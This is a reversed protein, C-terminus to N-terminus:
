VEGTVPEKGPAQFDYKPTPPRPPLVTGKAEVPPHSAGPEPSAPAPKPAPKPKDMNRIQMVASFFSAQWALLGGLFMWVPFKTVDIGMAALAEPSSDIIM